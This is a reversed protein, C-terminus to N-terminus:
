FNVGVEKLKCCEIANRKKMKCPTMQRKRKSRDKNREIAREVRDHIDMVNMARIVVM